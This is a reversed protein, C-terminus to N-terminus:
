NRNLGVSIGTKRVFTPTGVIGLTAALALDEDLREQYSGSDICAHIVDASGPLLRSVASRWDVRQLSDAVVFLYNHVGKWGETREGCISIAAALEANSHLGVLPLHRLIRVSSGPADNHMRCFPCQYDFFEVVTDKAPEGLLAGQTSLQPWHSEALVRASRDSVWSDFPGRLVGENRFLVFGAFALLGLNVLRDVFKRM